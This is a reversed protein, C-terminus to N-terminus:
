SSLTLWDQRLLSACMQSIEIVKPRPVTFHGMPKLRGPVERSHGALKKKQKKKRSFLSSSYLMYRARLPVANQLAHTKDERTAVSITALARYILCKMHPHLPQACVTIYYVWDRREMSSKCIGQSVLM